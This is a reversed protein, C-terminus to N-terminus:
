VSVLNFVSKIIKGQNINFKFTNEIIVQWNLILRNVFTDFYSNVEKINKYFISDEPIPLTPNITFLNTIGDLLEKVSQQNFEAEKFSDEFIGTSNEVISKSIKNLLTTEIDTIKGDYFSDFQFCYNIRNNAENVSLNPNTNKFYALLIKRLLMIYPFIIFYKTMFILLEKVFLLVKNESTYKGFTFYIESVKNTNTYFESIIKLNELQNNDNKLNKLTIIEKELCKFTLLDNSENLNSLNVMNSLIKSLTGYQKTLSNYRDLIKNSNLPKRTFSQKLTLLSKIGEIESELKEINEQMKRKTNGNSLKTINNNLKDLEYKKNEILDMIYNDEESEFLNNIINLNENVFLYKGFDNDDFNLLAKMKGLIEDDEIKYISESLYQNAIYCVISFSHELYKPINNGFKENGLILGILEEKQYSVFYNLWDKFHINNDKLKSSHNTFEDLLFDFVNLDTFERFDIKTKLKAIIDYEHMKLIPYVANQNNVDVLYPNISSNLLKDFIKYNINLKYKSKLLEFNAYEEPYIIFDKIDEKENRFDVKSFQYYNYSLNKEANNLLDEFSIMTSNLMVDYEVPKLELEFSTNTIIGKRKWIESIINFTQKQLYIKSQQTVLEQVLKGIIFFTHVDDNLIDDKIERSLKLITLMPELEPTGTIKNLINLIIMHLNFKYFEPLIPAISPPLKSVKSLVLAEKKIIYKGRMMNEIVNRVLYKYRTQGFNYIHMNNNIEPVTTETRGAGDADKPTFIGTNKDNDDYYLFKSTKGLSPIEFYNFKPIKYLKDPSFLYHYLLIYGNYRNLEQIIKDIIGVENADYYDLLESIIALTPYLNTFVKSLQKNSDILNVLSNNYDSKHTIIALIKTLVYKNRKKVLNEVFDLPPRYHNYDYLYYKMKQKYSLILTGPPNKDVLVYNGILPMQQDDLDDGTFLFYNDNLSMMLTENLKNKENYGFDITTATAFSDAYYNPILGMYYLGLHRAENLKNLSISEYDIIAESNIPYKYIEIIHNIYPVLSATQRKKIINIIKNPEIEADTYIEADNSVNVIKDFVKMTLFIEDSKKLGNNIFTIISMVDYEQPKAKMEKVKNYLMNILINTINIRNEDTDDDDNTDDIIKLLEVVKDSIEKNTNRNFYSDLDGSLKESLLVNIIGIMKDEKIKQSIMIHSIFYKKLSADLAENTINGGSFNLALVLACLLDTIHGKLNSDSKFCSDSCYLCYIVSSINKTNFLNNWKLYFEDLKGGDNPKTIPLKFISNYALEVILKTKEEKFTNTPLLSNGNNDKVDSLNNIHYTDIYKLVSCKSLIHLVKKEISDYSLLKNLHKVDSDFIKIKRSGGLFTLDDWDIINDAFDVSKSSMISNNYKEWNYEVTDEPIYWLDTRSIKKSEFKDSNREIFTKFIKKIEKEYDDIIEYKKYNISQCLRKINEKSNKALKKINSEINIDKLPSLNNNPIVWSNADKEHIELENLEPFGNWKKKIINEIENRTVETSERMFKPNVDLKLANESIKKGLDYALTKIKKDSFISNNITNSLLELFPYTKLLEWLQKKLEILKQKKDFSIKTPKSIFDKIEKTESYLEIRGQLAYHLATFGSNDRYNVDVGLNILFEVISFHQHKCALHLPTQNEKNPKDPNVDNQVLFKIVNLRHFEKKMMNNSNLVKHILNDGTTMEEVNLSISNIIAYQKIQQTDMNSILNFLGEVKEKPYELKPRYPQNFPDIRKMM